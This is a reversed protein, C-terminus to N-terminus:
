INGILKMTEPTLLELYYGKKIRFTIRNETKNVNVSIPPNDTLLKHKKIIYKFYDRIDSVSCSGDLLEFKENSTPAPVKFKNYKIVKKYKEM